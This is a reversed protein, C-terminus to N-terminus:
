VEILVGLAGHLSMEDEAEQDARSDVKGELEGVRCRV